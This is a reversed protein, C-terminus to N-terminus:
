TFCFLFFRLDFRNLVLNALNYARIKLKSILFTHADCLVRYLFISCESFIKLYHSNNRLTKCTM